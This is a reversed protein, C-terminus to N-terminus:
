KRAGQQIGWQVSAGRLIHGDGLREVAQLWCAANRKRQERTVFEGSWMVLARRRQAFTPKRALSLVPKM